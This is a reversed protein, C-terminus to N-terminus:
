LKGWFHLLAHEHVDRPLPINRQNCEAIFYTLFEKLNEQLNSDRNWCIKERIFESSNPNALYAFFEVQTELVNAFAAMPVRCGGGLSNMWSRELKAALAAEPNSAKELIKRVFSNDKCCQFVVIGQGVAPTLVEPSFIESIEQSLGLRELGAAGLLIADLEGNKVKAIRSELNGRLDLCCLDPRKARLQLVRRPSGTGVKAGKPLSEFTKNGAVLVDFPTARPLFGVLELRSDTAEPVDKLSHVAFDINGELLAEELEKVFVGTGGFQVLSRVRDKDGSTHVPCINIELEPFQNKIAAKALNAQAMALPSSRTGLNLVKKELM